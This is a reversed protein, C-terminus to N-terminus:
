DHQSREYCGTKLIEAEAQARISGVVAASITFIAMMACFAFISYCVYKDM